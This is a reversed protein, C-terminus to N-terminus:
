NKSQNNGSNSPSNPNVAQAYTKPENINGNTQQQPQYMFHPVSHLNNFSQPFQPQPYPIFIPHNQEYKFPRYKRAKLYHNKKLNQPNNHHYYYMRPDKNYYKKNNNETRYDNRDIFERKNSLFKNNEPVYPRSRGHTYIQKETTLGRMSPFCNCTRCHYISRNDRHNRNKSLYKNPSHFANQSISFPVRKKYYGFAMLDPNNEIESESSSNSDLIKPKIKHQKSHSVQERIAM